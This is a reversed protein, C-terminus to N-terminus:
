ALITLPNELLNKIKKLFIAGQAGDIVRHDFTFSLGMVSRKEIKDGFMRLEEEVSCVGLIGSEPPNIIPNFSVIDYMGLNSVTFTGGNYEDPTLKGERAKKALEKSAMSIEKVSMRDANRIVPVILGEELAVAMGLNIDEKYVIEKEDISANVYPIDKIASAVAKLVFDNLSIKMDLAECLEKRLSVLRTVDAKANLTVPPAERHSKSMREAIILRMGAIPKRTVKGARQSHSQLVIEEAKKNDLGLLDDKMVKGQIGSGKVSALDIGKDEAIKRAVPTALVTKISEIDSAKIQGCSGTGKINNLDMGREKALTKALPTAAIKGDSIKFAEFAKNGATDPTGNEEKVKEAKVSPSSSEVKEGAAGIYGITETVPVVEGENRLIELLIGSAQAEVEMNVKDTLIELLPEGFEVKDGKKKFWKVITGEEMAMGAKPMIINTAM